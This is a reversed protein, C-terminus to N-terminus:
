ILDENEPDIESMHVTIMHVVMHDRSLEGHNKDAPVAQNCFQCRLIRELCSQKAAALAKRTLDELMENTAM